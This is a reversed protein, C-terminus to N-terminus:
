APGGHAGRLTLAHAGSRAATQLADRPALGEALAWTLGAAFRDGCGYADRESAGVPSPEWRGESEQTRFHGGRAGETTAVLRPETALDGRAYREAPDQGSHVLADLVVGAERVVPLVRATAVLVRAARAARLWLASGKCFYVADMGAFWGADLDADAAQQAPGVVIITREGSPQILTV